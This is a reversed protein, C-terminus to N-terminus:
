NVQSNGTTIISPASEVLALIGCNFDFKMRTLSKQINVERVEIVCPTLNSEVVSRCVARNWGGVWRNFVHFGAFGHGFDVPDKM